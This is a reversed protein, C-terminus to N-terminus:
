SIDRRLRGTFRGTDIDYYRRDLEWSLLCLRDCLLSLPCGLAIDIKELLFVFESSLFTFFGAGFSGTTTPM